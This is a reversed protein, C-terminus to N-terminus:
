GGSHRERYDELNSRLNMAAESSPPLTKLVSEFRAFNRSNLFGGALRAVVNMPFHGGTRLVADLFADIEGPAARYANKLIELGRNYLPIASSDGLSDIVALTRERPALAQEAWELGELRVKDEPFRLAWHAIAAADQESLSSSARLSRLNQIVSASVQDELQRPYGDALACPNTEELCTELKRLRELPAVSGAAGSGGGGAAFLGSGDSDGASVTSLGAGAGAGTAAVPRHGLSVSVAEAEASQSVGAPRHFGWWALLAIVFAALGFWNRM